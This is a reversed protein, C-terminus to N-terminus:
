DGYRGDVNRLAIRMPGSLTHRPSGGNSSWGVGRRGLWDALLEAVGDLESLVRGSRVGCRLSRGCGASEAREEYGARNVSDIDFVGGANGTGEGGLQGGCRGAVVRPVHRHADVLEGRPQPMVVQGPVDNRQIGGFFAM